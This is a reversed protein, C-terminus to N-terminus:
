DLDSQGLKTHLALRDEPTAASCVAGRASGGGEERIKGRCKDTVILRGTYGTVTIYSIAYGPEFGPHVSALAITTASAVSCTYKYLTHATAVDASHKSM